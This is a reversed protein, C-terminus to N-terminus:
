LDLILLDCYWFPLYWVVVSSELGVIRMSRYMEVVEVLRNGECDFVIHCLLPRGSLAASKLYGPKVCSENRYKRSEYSAQTM